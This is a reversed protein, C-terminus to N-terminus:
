VREYREWLDVGSERVESRRFRPAEALGALALAGVAPRGEGGILIPARFWEIRDV